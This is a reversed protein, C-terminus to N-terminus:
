IKGNSEKTWRASPFDQRMMKRLQSLESTELEGFEPVVQASPAKRLQTAKGM